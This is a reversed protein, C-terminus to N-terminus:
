TARGRPIWGPGFRVGLVLEVVHAYSEAGADIRNAKLYRDYVRWGATRLTPSVEAVLRARIAALDARPGADLRATLDSRLPGGFAGVTESYLFLWGSYQASASGQVCTLWGLFNADGEDALGALHSWEHAGV